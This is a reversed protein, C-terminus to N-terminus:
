PYKDDGWQGLRLLLISFGVGVLTGIQFMLSPDNM